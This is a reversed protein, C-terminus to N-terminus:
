CWKFKNKKEIKVNFLLKLCELKCNVKYIIINRVIYYLNYLYCIM